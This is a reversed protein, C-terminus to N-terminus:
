GVRVVRTTHAFRDHWGERVPSQAITVAALIGGAIGLVLGIGGLPAVVALLPYGMFISRRAAQAPTPRGGDQATTRLRLAMKGLTRGTRSEMLTFYGLFIVANLVAVGAGVARTTGASPHRLDVGAANLAVALVVTLLNAAVYVVGFDVLRAVLRVGVDARRDLGEPGYGPASGPGTHDAGNPTPYSTPDSM